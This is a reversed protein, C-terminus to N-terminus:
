GEEEGELVAPRGQLRQVKPHKVNGVQCPWSDGLLCVESCIQSPIQLTKIPNMATPLDVRFTSPVMGNAPTRPLNFISCEGEEADQNCIFCSRLRRSSHRQRPHDTDKYLCEALLLAVEQTSEEPIKAAGILFAIAVSKSNDRGPM